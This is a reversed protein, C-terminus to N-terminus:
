GRNRVLRGSRKESRVPAREVRAPAMMRLRPAVCPKEWPSNALM